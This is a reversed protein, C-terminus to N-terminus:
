FEGSDWGCGPQVGWEPWRGHGDCGGRVAMRQGPVSVMEGLWEPIPLASPGGPLLALGWPQERSLSSVLCPM